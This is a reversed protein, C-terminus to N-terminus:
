HDRRGTHWVALVVLACGAFQTVTPREGLFAVGLVLALVPQLLLLAASTAPALRSLAPGLLILSLVQGFLAMLALWGFPGWGPLPQIGTWLAGLVGSTVAASLTSVCVPHVTHPGGGGLRTLFLYGAYAVGATAGYVIGTVPSTGPEPDGIAGSALAVGVLLFPLALWYRGGPRTRTLVLALLPFVAIQLNLLVTAIASGVDHISQAWFVFDVGLLAGAAVDLLPGRGSRPGLRRREVLALPVLAVLALLCRLSAATGATVDALKVFMASASVCASSVVALLVPNRGALGGRGRARRPSPAPATSTHRATSPTSSAPDTTARDNPARGAPPRGAPAQGAPSPVTPGPGAPASDAAPGTTTPGPTARNTAPGTPPPGGPSTGTSTRNATAPGATTRGSPIADATTRVPSTRGGPAPGPTVPGPNPGGDPATGASAPGPASTAPASPTHGTLADGRAQSPDRPQPADYPQADTERMSM